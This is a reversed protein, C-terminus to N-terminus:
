PDLWLGSKGEKAFKTNRRSDEPGRLGEFAGNENSLVQRKAPLLVAVTLNFLVDYQEM